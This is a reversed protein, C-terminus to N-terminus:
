PSRRFRGKKGVRREESRYSFRYANRRDGIKIEVEWDAERSFPAGTGAAGPISCDACRHCGQGFVMFFRFCVIRRLSLLANLGRELTLFSTPNSRSQAFRLASTSNITGKAPPDILYKPRITSVVTPSAFM